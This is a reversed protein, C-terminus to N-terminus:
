PAPRLLVRFADNIRTGVRTEVASRHTGSRGLMDACRFLPRHLDCCRNWHHWPLFREGYPVSGPTRRLVQLNCVARNPRAEMRWAVFRSFGPYHLTIFSHSRTSSHLPIRRTVGHVAPPAGM